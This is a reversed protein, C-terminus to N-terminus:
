KILLMKKVDAFNGSSIRYFYLASSLLSADFDVSQFGANMERNVLEAVEEGIANYVSLKVNAQNPSAFSITTSPNFPNPYNQAM